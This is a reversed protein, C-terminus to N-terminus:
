GLVGTMRVLADRLWQADSENRTRALILRREKGQKADHVLTAVDGADRVAIRNVDRCDCRNTTERVNQKLMDWFITVLRRRGVSRTPARAVRAIKSGRWRRIGRYWDRM